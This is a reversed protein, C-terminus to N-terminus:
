RVEKQLVLRWLICFNLVKFFVFIEKMIDSADRLKGSFRYLSLLDVKETLRRIQNISVFLNSELAQFAISISRSEIMPVGSVSVFQLDIDSYCINRWFTACHNPRRIESWPTGPEFGPRHVNRQSRSCTM